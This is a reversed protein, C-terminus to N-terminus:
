KARLLKKQRKNLLELYSYRVRNVFTKGERSQVAGHPIQTVLDSHKEQASESFYVSDMKSLLWFAFTRLLGPSRVVEQDDLTVLASVTPRRAKFLLLALAGYSAMVSWAIKFHFTRDLTRARFFGLIPLLFKDVKMGFGV